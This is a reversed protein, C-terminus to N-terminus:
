DFGRDSVRHHRNRRDKIVTLSADTYIHCAGSCDALEQVTYSADPNEHKKHPGARYDNRHCGACDPALTPDDTYVVNENNAPHCRTCALDRAHDGPYATSTHRFTDPAWASTRHCESCDETTGFHDNPMGTADTGNHCSACGSTIGMHDFRTAEWVFTNHCFDCELNTVVHGVPKGQAQVDNHCQSCAGTVGSHEFRVELWTFTTHCDDCQNSSPIHDLTKGSEARTGSGDHCYGCQTPTGRFVGQQHCSECAVGDHSGTLIFRTGVHDFREDPKAEAAVRQEAGILAALLLVSLSAVVLIRTKESRTTM